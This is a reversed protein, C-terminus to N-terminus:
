FVWDAVQLLILVVGVGSVALNEWWRRPVQAIRGSHPDYAVELTDGPEPKQASFSSPQLEERRGTVPHDYAIVSGYLTRRPSLSSRRPVIDTVSGFVIIADAPMRDRRHLYVGFAILGIGLLIPVM